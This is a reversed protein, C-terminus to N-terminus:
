PPTQGFELALDQVDKSVNSKSPRNQSIRNLDPTQEGEKRKRAEIIISTHVKREAPSLDLVYSPPLSEAAMYYIDQYISRVDYSFFLRIFNVFSLNYLNFTYQKFTSVGWLDTENMSKLAFLIADQVKKMLSSSIKELIQTKQQKSFNKLIIKKDKIKIYEVFEQFTEYFIEYESMNKLIIEQFISISDINPWNIKIEVENEEFINNELSKLAGYYLNKLFINLDLTTKVSKVDSNKSESVFEMLSGISIIRLKTLFLIYDIINIKEIEEKNEICNRITKFVFGNFSEHNETTNPFSLNAKALVLQEKTSIERFKIKKDSFPLETSYNYYDV